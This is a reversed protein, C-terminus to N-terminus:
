DITKSSADGMSQSFGEFTYVYTEVRIMVDIWLSGFVGYRARERKYSISNTWTEGARGCFRLQLSSEGGQLLRHIAGRTIADNLATDIRPKLVELLQDVRRNTDAYKTEGLTAKLDAHWALHLEIREPTFLSASLYHKPWNKRVRQFQNMDRARLQPLRTLTKEFFFGRQKHRPRGFLFQNKHTQDAHYCSGLAGAVVLSLLSAM